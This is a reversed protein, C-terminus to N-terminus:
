ADFKVSIELTRDDYKLGYQELVEKPVGDWQNPKNGAYGLDEIGIKSTFFGCATLDRMTNFFSVGQLMEPKAKEPFAIEDVIEIQQQANCSAFDMDFRKMCQIDLWKIGGRLPTQYHPMDKVIF